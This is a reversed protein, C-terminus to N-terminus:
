KSWFINIKSKRGSKGDRRRIAIGFQFHRFNAGKKIIFDIMKPMSEIIAQIFKSWNCDIDQLAFTVDDKLDIMFEPIYFTSYQKEKNM